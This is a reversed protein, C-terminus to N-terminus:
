GFILIIMDSLGLDIICIILLFFVGNEREWNWEIKGNGFIM